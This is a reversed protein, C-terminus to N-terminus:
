HHSTTTTARIKRATTAVAAVATEPVATAAPPPLPFPPVSPLSPLVTEDDGDDTDSSGSGGGTTAVASAVAAAVWRPVGGVPSKPLHHHDDGSGGGGGAATAWDPIRSSSEAAEFSKELADAASRDAASAARAANVRVVPVIKDTRSVVTASDLYWQVSPNNGLFGRKCFFVPIIVLTCGFLLSPNIPVLTNKLVSFRDFTTKINGDFEILPTYRDPPADKRSRFPQALAMKISALDVCKSGFAGLSEVGNFQVHALITRAVFDRAATFLKILMEGSPGTLETYISCPPRRGDDGVAIKDSPRLLGNNLTIQPGQIFMNSANVGFETSHKYQIQVESYNIQRGGNKPDFQKNRIAPSKSTINSESFESIDTIIKTFSMIIYLNYTRSYFNYTRTYIKYYIDCM